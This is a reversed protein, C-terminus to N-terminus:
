QVASVFLTLSEVSDVRVSTGEAAGAACNAEWIEGRVRVQGVPRCPTVVEALLGVLQEDPSQPPHQRALHKSWRRLLIIEVVELLAAVVLLAVAWAGGIHALAVVVVTLIFIM